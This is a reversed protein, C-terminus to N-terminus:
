FYDTVLVEYTPKTVAIRHLTAENILRAEMSFGQGFSAGAENALLNALPLFYETPVANADQILVVNDRALQMILPDVLNDITAKDETALAQGSVLAGLMTAAREILDVRSKTLDMPMGQFISAVSLPVM